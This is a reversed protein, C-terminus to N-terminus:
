MSLLAQAVADTGTIASLDAIVFAWPYDINVEDSDTDTGTLTATGILQYHVGDNSGKIDITAEVAGDGDVICQVKARRNANWTGTYPAGTVAEAAKGLLDTVKVAEM